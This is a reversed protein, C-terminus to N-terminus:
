LFIFIPVLKLLGRYALETKKMVVPQTLDTLNDTLLGRSEPVFRLFCFSREASVMYASFAM